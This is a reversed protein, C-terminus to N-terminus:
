SCTDCSHQHQSRTDTHKHGLQTRTRHALATRLLRAPRALAPKHRLLIRVIDRDQTDINDRSYCTTIISLFKMTDQHYTLADLAITHSACQTDASRSRLCSIMLRAPRTLTSTRQNVRRTVIVVRNCHQVYM